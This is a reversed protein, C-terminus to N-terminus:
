WAQAWRLPHETLFAQQDRLLQDLKITDNQELAQLSLQALYALFSLELGIHDDPEHHLKENQLGFDRYWKRVKLTQEQFILKADNLYISEWPPAIVEDPGIFLRTYDVQMDEFGNDSYHSNGWKRLLALGANVNEQENAFPSEDFLNYDFLSQIWEKEEEGPYTYVLRGFLATLLMEGTLLEQWASSSLTTNM